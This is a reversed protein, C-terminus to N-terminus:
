QVRQGDSLTESPHVVVHEGPKVGDLVSIAGKDTEGVQVIREEVRKEKENLVFLRRISGEVRLTDEPVVPEPKSGLDLRATVFMGPRLKGDPNAVVAEVVLDRSSGRLAPGMYKVNGSFAQDPYASTTFDVRQDMRVLPVQQEPVSLQLRLPDIEVLTAIKTSPSVYEGISVNREVILGAFPARIIADRLTKSAISLRAQAAEASLKSTQCQTMTRDYEAQSIAGSEFLKKGRECEDAALKSQERAQAAMAQAENTSFVASRADLQVLPDGRKVLSGRDVKTAIVKGTADAALDSQQNAVLSGTLTLHHPMPREEVVATDV